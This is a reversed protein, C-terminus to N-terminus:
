RAFRQLKRYRLRVSELIKSYWSVIQADTMKRSPEPNHSTPTLNSLNFELDNRLQTPQLHEATQHGMPVRVQTEFYNTVRVMLKNTLSSLSKIESVIVQFFILVCWLQEAVLSSGGATTISVDNFTGWQNELVDTEKFLIAKSGNKLKWHIIKFFDTLAELITRDYDENICQPLNWNGGPDPALIAQYQRKL